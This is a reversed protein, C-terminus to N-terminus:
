LRKLAGAMQQRLATLYRQAAIKQLPSMSSWKRKINEMAVQMRQRYMLQMQRRKLAQEDM